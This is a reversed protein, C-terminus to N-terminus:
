YALPMILLVVLQDPWYEGLRKVQLNLIIGVITGPLWVLIAGAGLESQMGPAVGLWLLLGSLGFGWTEITSLTRQLHIPQEPNQHM